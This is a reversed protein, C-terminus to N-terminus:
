ISCSTQLNHVAEELKETFGAYTDDPQPYLLSGIKITVPGRRPWHKNYPLINFLGDLYIPVVPLNLTIAMMGTGAQFPQLNGDHTLYGEPFVLPCYGKDALDGTLRLTRRVGVAEHPLPYANLLSSLLIFQLGFWFNKYWPYDGPSFFADFYEQSVAPSVKGRWSPPLAALVAIVDLLSTHNPTFLVPPHINELNHRGEVEVDMFTKFLPVYMTQYLLQRLLPFPQSHTVRPILVARNGGDRRPEPRSQEAEPTTEGTSEATPSLPEGSTNTKHVSGNAAVEPSTSDILDQLDGFTKVTSVQSEDLRVNFHEEIDAILAVLSLSSLGLEERLLTNKQISSPDTEATEAVVEQLNRPQRKAPTNQYEEQGSSVARAVQWRKVKMTSSTRPFETEKWVTIGTIRQYPELDKNTERLVDNFDKGNRNQPIIVAHVDTAKPRTRGVVVCDKVSPHRRLVAEVDEPYVNYGEATVIVDKKRGKYYLRGDSGLEGLDGTHLWGESDVGTDTNEGTASVETDTVNKGKVLIEGDEAIKVQQGPLVEGLSGPKSRLPHNVTVIPSAETLGYGQLTLFGLRNWEKEIEPSLPAGGAVVTWFKWGLHRHIDRFRWWREVTARWGYKKLTRNDPQFEKKLYSLIQEIFAPVAILATVHLRRVTDVVAPPNSQSSFVVSGGLIPPIFLGLSQGFMHSLPLTNLLRLPQFPRLFPRWKKIETLFPDLDACLNKHRHSIGKPRGTTGSTYVTEVITETTIEASTPVAASAQTEIEAIATHPINSDAPPSSRDSFIHKAGSEQQVRKVFDASASADLPIVIIGNNVAAWFLAIWGMRNASWIIIRDNNTLGTETLYEATGAICQYLQKYSTGFVRYGNDVAVAQRRSLKKIRPILELLTDM